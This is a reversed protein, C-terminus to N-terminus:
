NVSRQASRMVRPICLTRRTMGTGVDALDVEVGYLTRLNESTIVKEPAGEELIRGGHLLVVRDASVLAHDPNHTSLLIGMGRDALRLVRDLVMLRADQALARAILTSRDQVGPNHLL